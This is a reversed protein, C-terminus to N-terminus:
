KYYISTAVNSKPGGSLGLLSNTVGPRRSSARPLEGVLAVASTVARAERSAQQQCKDARRWAFTCTKAASMDDINIVRLAVYMAPRNRRSKAAQKAAIGRGSQKHAATAALNGACPSLILKM